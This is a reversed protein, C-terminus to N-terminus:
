SRAFDSVLDARIMLGWWRGGWEGKGEWGRCGDGVEGGIPRKDIYVRREGAM